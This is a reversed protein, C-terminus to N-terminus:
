SQPSPLPTTVSTPTFGVLLEGVTELNGELGAQELAAGIQEADAIGLSMGLGKIRHGENRVAENDGRQLADKITAISAVIRSKAAVRLLELQQELENQNGCHSSSAVALEQLLSNTNFPRSLYSDCGAELATHRDEPYANASLAIIRMSRKGAQQEDRRITRVLTIGDMEAMRMDTLLVDFHQGALLALADAGSEVTTLIAPTDALLLKLLLLNELLDDVALVQLSETINLVESLSHAHEARVADAAHYPLALTFCSGQDPISEVTLTGAMAEALRRSIPLGLGIGGGHANTVFPEFIAELQDAMIGCGTDTVSFIIQAGRRSVRPSISGHSTSKIANEFCNAIIQSIRQRDGVIMEPLDDGREPQYSLGKATIRPQFTARIENLLETLNFITPELRITGAEIKTLDLLDDIHRRLLGTSHQLLPLLEDREQAGLRKSLVEGVGAITALPTRMEHSVVGLFASKERNAEELAHHAERLEEELRESTLSLYSYNIVIIIFNILLLLINRLKDAAIVDAFTSLEPHALYFPIRWVAHIIILPLFCISLLWQMSYRRAQPALLPEIAARSFIISYFTSMVVGRAVTIDSIITFYSLLGISLALLALNLPTRWWREPIAYFRNIGQLFLVPMAQMMGNGIVNGWFPHLIGRVIYSIVAGAVWLVVGALWVDFGPYTKRTVRTHVLIMVMTLVNIITLVIITPTDLKM